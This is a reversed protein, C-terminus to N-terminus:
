RSVPIAVLRRGVVHPVGLSDKWIGWVHTDTADRFSISEPLLVRRPEGTMDGRRVAHYIVLTDSREFTKLWVEGSATAVINSTAPLFEPKYLGDEWAERLMRPSVGPISVNALVFDGQEQIMERTLRLPEFQLRRSWVTDGGGGLEILEVAGKGGARRGVIASGPEFWTLDSDGFVQGAWGTRGAALRIPHKKNLSSLWFIPEPVRWGGSDSRRVRLLPYRDIKREVFVSSGISPVAFYGDRGTPAELTVGHDQYRLATTGGADTRELTGDAGYFTFRSGWGERVYFGGDDMFEVRTPFTFEGPGEGAGGLVFALSGDPTWVSLEADQLDLVFVRDRHPDARLVPIQSFVVDQEPDGSFKYEGETLWTM